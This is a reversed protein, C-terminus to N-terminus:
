FVLLPKGGRDAAEALHAAHVARHAPVPQGEPIVMVSNEVLAIASALGRRIDDQSTTAFWHSLFFGRVQKSGFVLCGASLPITLM